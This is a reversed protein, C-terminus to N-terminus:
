KLSISNSMTILPFQSGPVFPTLCGVLYNTDNDAANPSAGPGTMAQNSDFLYNPGFRWLFIGNVILEHAPYCTHSGSVSATSGDASITVVFSWTFPAAIPEGPNYGSGSFVVSVSGDTNVTATPTWNPVAKPKQVLGITGNCPRPADLIFPNIVEGTGAPDVDNGFNAILSQTDYQRTTGTDGLVGPLPNAAGLNVTAWESARYPNSPPLYAPNSPNLGFNRHDGRYYLAPGIGPLHIPSLSAPTCDTPGQVWDARIFARYTISVTGAAAPSVNMVASNSQQQAGPNPAFNHTNTGNSDVSVDVMADANAAADFLANIQGDTPTSSPNIAASVGNGSVLIAPNTGFGSGSIVVPVGLSGASITSPNISTIVPTPDGQVTFGLTTGSPQGALIIAVGRGGPIATPAISLTGVLQTDSVSSTTFTMASDAVGQSTFYIGSVGGATFGSGTLTIGV